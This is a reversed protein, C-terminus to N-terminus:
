ASRELVNALEHKRKLLKCFILIESDQVSVGSSESVASTSETNDSKIKNEELEKEIMEASVKEESNVSATLDPKHFGM